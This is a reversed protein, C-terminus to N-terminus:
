NKMNGHISNMQYSKTKDTSFNISYEIKKAPCAKICRGCSICNSKSLFSNDLISIDMPCVKRCASCGTCRNSNTEVKYIAVRNFLGLVAGLPCLMRCFFRGGFKATGIIFLIGTIFHLVLMFHLFPFFSTMSKLGTTLTYELVGYYFGAPCFFSCYILYSFNNHFYYFLGTSILLALILYKLISFKNNLKIRRGKIKEFIDSLFGFPCLWGCVWRGSLIGVFIIEGILFFPIQRNLLSMQFTGIPCAGTALECSQCNIFPFVGLGTRKVPCAGTVRLIGLRAVVFALWQTIFRFVKLKFDIDFIIRFVLMMPFFILLVIYLMEYHIKNFSYKLSSSSDKVGPLMYNIFNKQNPVDFNRYTMWKEPKYNNPIICFIIMLSVAFSFIILRKKLLSQDDRLSNRSKM